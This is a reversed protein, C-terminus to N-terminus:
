MTHTCHVSRLNLSTQTWFILIVFATPEMPYGDSMINAVQRELLFNIHTFTYFCVHEFELHKTSVLDNCFMSLPIHSAEKPVLTKTSPTAM